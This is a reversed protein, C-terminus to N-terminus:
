LGGCWTGIGSEGPPGPLAVAPWCSRGVLGACSRPSKAARSDAESSSCVVPPCCRQTVTTRSMSQLLGRPLTNAGHPRHPRQYAGTALVLSQAKCSGSTTELVFGDGDRARLERVEVGERVPSRFSAAYAELHAVIENRLMFGDPDAGDYPRSPLRVSWNPLVLCFSDWRKRWAEGVRGRELVIHDVGLGTLEHSIALGAQGAGVVAVETQEMAASVNSM